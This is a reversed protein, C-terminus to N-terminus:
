DTTPASSHSDSPSTNSEAARARHYRAILAHDKSVAGLPSTTPEATVSCENWFAYFKQALRLLADDPQSDQEVQGYCIAHLRSLLYRQRDFAPGALQAHLWALIQDDTDRMHSLIDEPRIPYLSNTEALHILNLAYMHGFGCHRCGNFMSSYCALLQADKEGFHKVLKIWAIASTTLASFFGRLGYSRMIEEDFPVYFGQAAVELRRLLSITTREVFTLPRRTITM